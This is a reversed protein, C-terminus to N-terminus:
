LQAPGFKSGPREDLDDYLTDIGQATLEAYLKECAPDTDAGGQKLNLTMAKFPAVSGPWKIGSDDPFGGIIAGGPRIPGIGYSGMHVPREAGDPGTVVARM